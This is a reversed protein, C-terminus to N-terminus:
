KVPSWPNWHGSLLGAMHWANQFISQCWNYVVSTRKRCVRIFVLTGYAILLILILSLLNWCIEPLTCQLLCGCGVHGWLPQPQPPQPHQHFCRPSTPKLFKLELPIPSYPQFCPIRPLLSYSVCSGTMAESGGWESGWVELDRKGLPYNFSDGRFILADGSFFRQMRANQTGEVYCSTRRDGWTFGATPVRM